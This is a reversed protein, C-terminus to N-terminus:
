SVSREPIILRHLTRFAGSAVLAALLFAGAVSPLAVFRSLAEGLNGMLSWWESGAALWQAGLVIASGLWEGFLSPRALDRVVPWLWPALGLASAALVAATALALRLKWSAFPDWRPEPIPLGLRAFVGAALNVKPRPLDRFVQDLALEADGDRAEREARLWRDLAGDLRRDQRSRFSM